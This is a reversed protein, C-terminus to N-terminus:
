YSAAWSDAIAAAISDDVYKKVDYMTPLYFDNNPLELSEGTEEEYEKAKLMSAANYFITGTCNVKKIIGSPIGDDDETLDYEVNKFLYGREIEQAVGILQVKEHLYESLDATVAAETYYASENALHPKLILPGTIAGGELKLYRRDAEEQPLWPGTGLLAKFEEESGKYGGDVAYQYATKGDAGAPGAPGQAGNDGKAGAPGRLSELQAATFDGYTFADGRPGQPGTPGQVGRPGQEGTEGKDGKEGAPGAPGQPGAAGDKGPAGDAGAPGAEGPDGKPGAPGQLPGIDQWEGLEANWLCVTNEAATGVAWAEGAEGTPHASELADLTEYRGCITFSTGDAGPDGKPGQPGTEGQIGQPGRPGTEGREGQPGTPGPEGKEGAPGMVGPPGQPGEEGQPGQEGQPGSPGIPGIPGTPGAPGQAGTEGREGVPGREGQDGTLGQIGQPGRLEELQAATFDGYTFADGKEGRPGEPGRIGQPGMPGAPGQWSGASQWTGTEANWWYLETGVLWCDGAGGSPHERELDELTEYQGKWLVNDGKEGKLSALWEDMTGKFGRKVALGYADLFYPPSMIERM